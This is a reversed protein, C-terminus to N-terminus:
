DAGVRKQRLAGRPNLIAIGAYRIIPEGVEPLHPTQASTIKL